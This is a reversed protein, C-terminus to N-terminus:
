WDPNERLMELGLNYRAMTSSGEIEGEIEFAAQEYLPRAREFAAIFAAQATAQDVDDPVAELASGGPQVRSTLELSERYYGSEILLM